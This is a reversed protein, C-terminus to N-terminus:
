MTRRLTPAQAQVQLLAQIQALIQTQVQPGIEIGAGGAEKREVQNETELIDGNEVETMTGEAIEIETEIAITMMDGVAQKIVRPVIAIATVIETMTAIQVSQLIEKEAIMLNETMGTKKKLKASEKEQPGIKLASGNIPPIEVEEQVKKRMMGERELLKIM